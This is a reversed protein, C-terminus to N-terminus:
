TDGSATLETNPKAFHSNLYCHFTDSPFFILEHKRQWKKMIEMLLTVVPLLNVLDTFAVM